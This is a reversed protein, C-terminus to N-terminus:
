RGHAGCNSHLRCAARKEEAHPFFLAWDRAHEPEGTIVSPRERALAFRVAKANLGPMTVAAPARREFYRAFAPDGEGVV